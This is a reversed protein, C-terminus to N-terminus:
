ANEANTRVHINQCPFLIIVSTTYYGHLAQAPGRGIRAAASPGTRPARKHRGRKSAREEHIIWKPGNSGGNVHDDTLKYM